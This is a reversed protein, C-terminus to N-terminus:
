PTITVGLRYVNTTGPVAPFVKVIYDGAALMACAPMGADNPCKIEEDDDFSRSEAIVSVGTSDYLQMDLDGNANKFLVKFDLTQGDVVTVKYFDLDDSPCIAAFRDEGTTLALATSPDNNPELVTCPDPVLMADIPPADSPGADVHESFDLIAECGGSAVAIMAGLLAREVRRTGM